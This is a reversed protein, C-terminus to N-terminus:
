RTWALWVAAVVAAIVGFWLLLMLDEPILTLFAGFFSTYEGPMSKIREVYDQFADTIGTLSDTLEDLKGLLWDIGEALLDGIADFIDQELVGSGYDKGELGCVSCQVIDYGEEIVNGSEDLVDEVREQVVWDHGTSEILETYKHGCVECTYTLQGPRACTAERQIQTNYVHSCDVADGSVGTIHEIITDLKNMFTIWQRQFWAWFGSESYIYEYEPDTAGIVDYYDQLTFVDFSGCPIWREGTWIRGDVATWASGDYLQLSVIRSNEVMAYVLGKEPYSPRVGGIQYGTIPNNTRVALVPADELEGSTYMATEWSFVFEPSSGEVLEAYMIEVGTTSNPIMNIGRIVSHYHQSYEMNNITVAYDHYHEIAEVTLTVPCGDMSSLVSVRGSEVSFTISSYTGDALVVSFTYTGGDACLPYFTENTSAHDSCYDAGLCEYGVVPLFLGNRLATYDGGNWGVTIGLSYTETAGSGASRFFVTTDSPTFISYAANFLFLSGDSIFDLFKNGKLSDNVSKMKSSVRRAWGDLSSFGLLNYQAPTLVLVEDAMPREGDPLILALNTDFPVSTPTYDEGPTYIARRTFRLEDLKKYTQQQMGFVFEIENGYPVSNLSSGVCVGNVYYYMTGDCRMICLENWSGVSTEILITKMRDYYLDGDFYLVPEGGLSVYSDMSPSETHSQYYRFQLTFDGNIDTVNPLTIGFCHITEDLYLSGNFVGEDLYTLSAGFGWDFSTIYSWYSSDETSGDFHYLARLDVDDATRAYQVVDRFVVSLQELDEATLDASSRGDPLQYYYEYREQYEETQGIYTVSTYDIHYEFKFSYNNTTYNNTTTNYVYEDHADVYYTQTSADYTLEDIYYVEGGVNIIGNNIDIPSGVLVAGDDYVNVTTSDDDIYTDGQDTYYNNPTTVATENDKPLYYPYGYKDCLVYATNYDSRVLWYYSGAEMIKAGPYLDSWQDKFENLEYNSAVHWFVTQTGVKQMNIWQGVREAAPESGSDDDGTSEPAYYPFHGQSNVVWLHAKNDYLRYVGLDSDYMVIYDPSSWWVSFSEKISEWIFALLGSASYELGAAVRSVDEYTPLAGVGLHSLSNNIESWYASQAKSANSYDEVNSGIWSNWASVSASDVLIGTPASAFAIPFLSFLMAVALFFTIIRKSVKM